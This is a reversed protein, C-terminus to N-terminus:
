GRFLNAPAGLSPLYTQENVTKENADSRSRVLELEKMIELEQITHRSTFSDVALSSRACNRSIAGIFESPLLIKQGFPSDAATVGM